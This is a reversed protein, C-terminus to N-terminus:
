PQEGSMQEKRKPYFRVAQEGFQGHLLPETGEENVGFREMAEDMDRVPAIELEVTRSHSSTKLGCFVLM